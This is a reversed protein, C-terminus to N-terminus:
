PPPCPRPKTRPHTLSLVYTIKVHGIHRYAPIQHPRDRDFWASKVPRRVSPFEGEERKWGLRVVCDPFAGAEEEGVQALDSTGGGGGGGGACGGGRWTDGDGVGGLGCGEGHAGWQGRAHRRRAGRRSRGWCVYHDQPRRDLAHPGGVRGLRRGRHTTTTTPPPPARTSYSPSRTLGVLAMWVTVCEV